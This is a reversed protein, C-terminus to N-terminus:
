FIDYSKSSKKVLFDAETGNQAQHFFVLCKKVYDELDCACNKVTYLTLSSQLFPLFGQNTQNIYSASQNPPRSAALRQKVYVFCM